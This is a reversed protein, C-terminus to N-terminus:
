INFYRKKKKFQEVKWKQPDFLLLDRLDPNEKLLQEREQQTLKQILAMLRAKLALYKLMDEDPSIDERKEPSRMLPPSTLQGEAMSGQKILNLVQMMSVIMELPIQM